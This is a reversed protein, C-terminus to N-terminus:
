EGADAGEEQKQVKLVEIAETLTVFRDSNTDASTFFGAMRSGLEEASLRGDRNSDRRMLMRADQRAEDDANRSGRSFSMTEVVAPTAQPAPDFLAFDAANGEDNIGFFLLRGAVSFMKMSPSVGPISDAVTNWEKGDFFELSSAPAFHGDSRTFGGYLYLGGDVAVVSPFVRPVAPAKATDWARKEFDFVDVTEALGAEASLGGILYFRRDLMGGGFSRRTSPLKLDPLRAVNSEDGWWHFVSQLQRRQTGVLSGGFGWIADEWGVVEHMARPAPLETELQKWAGGEPDFELLTPLAQFEGDIHSMGGAVVITHHESTRSNIAAAGSQVAVPLDELQEATREIIDFAFAERVFAEKSFDRPATSANGGFAYLKSGDLILSQSHRARGKYPVSWSLLKPQAAVHSSVSLSEVLNTRGTVSGTGGLAILRDDGAPLMRLFMRPFMLRDAIEWDQEDESLRYVVGSGGVCYLRDNVAFASTAFGATRSDAKLAPGESWKQNGPDFVSVKRTVGRQQIGGIVWLRGNHAAVSLARALYGPGDFTQWGSEPQDLDFKLISDHWDADRSSKGQLNWGGAVFVSRGVVAADLSSRSEPLDALKTWERTAPDYRAFHKTSDFDTEEDAGSNRFSLGAIRYLYKGDSILAVSQAPAQMPLEEWDAGPDNFRIRRFHDCLQDAGFGHADGDHGGFVYLYEGQVAAGFSTLREKLPKHLVVRAIEPSDDAAAPSTADWTGPPLLVVLVCIQKIM